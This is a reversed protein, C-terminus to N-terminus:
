RLWWVAAFLDATPKLWEVSGDSRWEFRSKHDVGISHMSFLDMNRIKRLKMAINTRYSKRNGKRIQLPDLGQWVVKETDYLGWNQILTVLQFITSGLVREGLWILYAKGCCTEGASNRLDSSPHESGQVITALQHTASSPIIEFSTVKAIAHWTDSGM